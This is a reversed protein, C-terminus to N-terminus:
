WYRTRRSKPSSLFLATVGCVAAVTQQDLDSLTEMESVCVCVCLTRCDEMGFAVVDLSGLVFCRGVGEM